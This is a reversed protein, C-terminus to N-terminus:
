GGHDDPDSWLLDCVPKEHPVEQLHSLDEIHDMTDICGHLSAVM